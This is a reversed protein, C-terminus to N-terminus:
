TENEAERRVEANMISACGYCCALFFDLIVLRLTIRNGYSYITETQWAHAAGHAHAICHVQIRTLDPSPRHCLRDSPNARQNANRRPYGKHLSLM